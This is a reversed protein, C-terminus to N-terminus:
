VRKRFVPKVSRGVLYKEHGDTLAHKYVEAAEAFAWLSHRMDADTFAENVVLSPALIGRRLIEQMFLTRYPQSKEHKPDKTIFFLNSPHGDAYLYEGIGLAQTIQNFGDRITMGVERMRGIVDRTRYTKLTAICAALGASEAGHTLSMLFVRDRETQRLGGLEMLDRRGALAAVSFGNAMAKGWTSLDPEIQHLQQGGGAHLRFGAITEDIVFITGNDRCMKKVAQLYGPLPPEDREAEMILCAIQGPNEAFIRALDELNNYRFTVTERRTNETIGADMATTCIFWDDVSFFPQDWCLAVKDRGTVARSLKIAATTADSGNKGFKIMDAYPACELMAEAADLELKAPRVYNNGGLMARYAADCVPRYGHGLTVSRAGAGFEIYQNGDMDWCRSALGRVIVPPMFQPYQDDGKAYTHAAGPILEHARRQHAISRDWTTPLDFDPAASAVFSAARASPAHAPAPSPGSPTNPTSIAM